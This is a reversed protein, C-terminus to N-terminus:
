GMVDLHALLRTSSLITSPELSKWAQVRWFEEFINFITPTSYHQETPQMQRGHLLVLCFTVLLPYTCTQALGGAVAGAALKAWGTPQGEGERTFYVRMTEYIM